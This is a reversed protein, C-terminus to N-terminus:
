PDGPHRRPARRLTDLRLRGHRLTARMHPPLRRRIVLDNAMKRRFQVGAPSQTPFIWQARSQQHIDEMVSRLAQTSNQVSHYDEVSAWLLGTLLTKPIRPRVGFYLNPRYPGWLLSQNPTRELEIPSQDAAYAQGFLYVTIFAYLAIWPRHYSRLAMTACHIPQPSWSSFITIPSDSAPPKTFVNRSAVRCAIDHAVLESHRVRM